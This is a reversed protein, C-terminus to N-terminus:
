YGFLDEFAYGNVLASAPDYPKFADGFSDVQVAFITGNYLMYWYENSEDWAPVSTSIYSSQNGLVYEIYTDTISGWTDSSGIITAGNTLGQYYDGMAVASEVDIENEVYGCVACVGVEDYDHSEKEEVSRGCEVPNWHDNEDYAWANENIEHEHDNGYKCLDCVGDNNKDYHPDKNTDISCGCAVAYWHGKADSSVEEAYSHEHNYDYGCVDCIKNKDADAHALDSGKATGCGEENCTAIHWHNTENYSWEDSYTHQHASANCAVLTLSMAICLIACVLLSVHRKM